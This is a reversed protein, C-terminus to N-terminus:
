SSAPQFAFWEFNFNGKLFVLYIRHAGTTPKISCSQTTWAQWGGTPPAPCTGILPGTPSDVRVQISGGTSDASAVRAVFTQIGTLNVARYGTYDSDAIFSLDQGSEWCFEGKVKGKHAIFSTAPTPTIEDIDAGFNPAALPDGVVVGEWGIYKDGAYFSEALTYGAIYHTLVITPSSIANLLPEDVYGQVGTIGQHILDAIMSQGNDHVPLFSRASTSVATDGIAGDAFTLSAYVSPNFNDDNSGQSYYGSLPENSGAFTESVPVSCPISSAELIDGLHLMDANWTSWNIEKLVLLPAKAPPEVFKNGVGFDMPVDLLVPGAESTPQAALARTVLALADAQTYGDLRTVLYGGYKAHSFPANANYYRNVWAKGTAGSGTLSAKRANAIKPYDIAALYSDVSPQYPKTGITESGTFGGTIRIPIGKTLVIFNIGNHTALYTSVPNAIETTYDTLSVTEQAASQSSDPCQVALTNSVGRKSQYDNAIAVSTASLSNYVVLVESPAHQVQARVFIIQSLFLAFITPPFVSVLRRRM